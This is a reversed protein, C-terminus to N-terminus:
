RGRSLRKDSFALFTRMLPKRYSVLLHTPQIASSLDVHLFLWVNIRSWKLLPYLGHHLSTTDIDPQEEMHIEARGYGTNCHLRILTRENRWTSRLEAMCGVCRRTDSPLKKRSREECERILPQRSPSVMEVNGTRDM